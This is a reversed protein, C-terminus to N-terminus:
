KSDGRVQRQYEAADFRGQSSVILGDAGMRWTEFGSIQVSNGTGGPGNNTGTLTWHYEAGDDRLVLKDFQVLLDPFATMFEQAAKAIADHGASPTGDNITLVGNPSFFRAVSVPDHSCWAATYREAFNRVEEPRM